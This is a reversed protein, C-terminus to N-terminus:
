AGPRATILGREPEWSVNWIRGAGDTVWAPVHGDGDVLRAILLSAIEAQTDGAEVRVERPTFFSLGHSRLAGDGGSLLAVLGPVPFAGGQLWGGVRQVFDQPAMMVGAPAWVMAMLGPLAALALAVKLHGRLVPSLHAGGELHPGVALLVADLPPLSDDFGHRQHIDPGAAAEGPLLGKLDFALGRYLLELCGHEAEGRYSVSLMSEAPLQGLLADITEVSPRQGEAFLLAVGDLAPEEAMVSDSGAQDHAVM